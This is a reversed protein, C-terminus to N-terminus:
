HVTGCPPPSAVRCLRFSFRHPPLARARHNEQPRRIRVDQEPRRLPTEGPVVGEKITQLKSSGPLICDRNLIIQTSECTLLFSPNAAQSAVAAMPSSRLLSLM